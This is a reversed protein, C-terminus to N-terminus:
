HKGPKVALTAERVFIGSSVTWQFLNAFLVPFRQPEMDFLPYKLGVWAKSCCVRVWVVSVAHSCWWSAPATSARSATGM